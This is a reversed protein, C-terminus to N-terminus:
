LVSLIKCGYNATGTADVHFHVIQAVILQEQQGIQMRIQFAQGTQLSQDASVFKLGSTSINILRISVVPDAPRFVNNEVYNEIKSVVDVQYRTSGRLEREKGNYLAIEKDKGIRVVRGQFDSPAPQSMVLLKLNESSGTDPLQKVKIQMSNRDHETISTECLLKGNSDYILVNRGTYDSRLAAQLAVM